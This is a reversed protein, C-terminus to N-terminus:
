GNIRVKRAQTRVERVPQYKLPKHFKKDNVVSNMKDHVKQAVASVADLIERRNKLSERDKKGAYRNMIWATIEKLGRLQSTSDKHAIKNKLTNKIARITEWGIAVKNKYHLLKEIEELNGKNLYHTALAGGAPDSVERRYDDLATKLSPVTISIDIGAKAAKYLTKAAIRMYSWDAPKLVANISSIAPSIDIGKEAADGLARTAGERLHMGKAKEHSLLSTIEDWQGKTAYHYALVESADEKIRWVSDNLAITLFSIAPSINAGHKLHEGISRIARDRELWELKPDKLKEVLEQIDSDHM